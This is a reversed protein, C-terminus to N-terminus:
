TRFDKRAPGRRWRLAAAGSSLPSRPLRAVPVRFSITELENVLNRESAWAPPALHWRVDLVRAMAGVAILREIEVTTPLREGDVLLRSGNEEALLHMLDAPTTTRRVFAENRLIYIITATGLETEVPPLRLAPVRRWSERRIQEDSM